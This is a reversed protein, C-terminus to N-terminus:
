SDIAQPDFTTAGPITLSVDLLTGLTLRLFTAISTSSLASV